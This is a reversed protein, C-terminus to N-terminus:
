VRRAEMVGFMGGTPIVREVEYGGRNLLDTYERATRERGGLMVLMNMDMLTVPSPQPADPLLMEVLVIRSGAPAARHVNKVIAECKDDPWDHLVSKLLYLDCGPPVGEFFDGSVLDIRDSM